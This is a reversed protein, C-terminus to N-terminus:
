GVVDTAATATLIREAMADLQDSTAARVRDVVSPALDGFRLHLQRLLLEAKGEAVGEAKGEAKGGAWWRNTANM